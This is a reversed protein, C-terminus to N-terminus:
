LYDYDRAEDEDNWTAYEGLRNQFRYEDTRMDAEFIADEIEERERDQYDLLEIYWDKEGECVLEELDTRAEDILTELSKQIDVRARRRVSKRCNRKLRKSPHCTTALRM